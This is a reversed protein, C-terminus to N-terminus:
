WPPHSETPPPPSGGHLSESIGSLPPAGYERAQRQPTGPKKLQQPLFFSFQFNREEEMRQGWLSLRSNSGATMRQALRSMYGWSVELHSPFPSSYISHQSQIEAVCVLPLPLNLFNVQPELRLCGDIWPLSISLSWECLKGYFWYYYHSVNVSHKCLAM